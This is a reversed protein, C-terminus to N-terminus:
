PGEPRPRSLATEVRGDVRVLVEMPQASTLAYATVKGEKWAVDVAIGGRARLGTVAGSSWRAPLAPLLALLFPARIPAGAGAPAAPAPEHSQLLMEAIGATAGFNGDIQFPPCTDLLNPLTSEALAGHLLAEAHDGDELRAWLSIKWARSWGTGGDGRRVLSARAAAALAPTGRVTIDAAPFLGFLHSVHRHQPETEAFDESWEQLRGDAAVRWPALKALAGRLQGRLADDVGLATADALTNAFLDHIISLDMTSGRSVAASREQGAADRYRFANEPSTSVPTVLHGQGDDVLWDLYFLCADRLLPWADEALFRRDGGYLWHEHLQRCLWAGGLPWFAVQAQNDVPQADRWLTTNHHAVWGRCGYMDHAVKRGEVALEGIMRLLPESCEALACPEAPWYNMEANINLTYGCAWPPIVQDNWIGQLNLPQAGPRSGAIMLYRGFRFFLAELAPDPARLRQDTPVQAAADADAASGLGLRVRGYLARYDADHRARLEDYPRLAAATLAVATRPAPEVTPRGYGDYGSAAALIITAEDAGSITLGTGSAAVSGGRIRVRVGAQFALGQGDYLVQAAQPRRAGAADWLAPYKWTDHKREVWDLTRRLVFGPLRGAMALGDGTATVAVPHPSGLELRFSISGPASATCRLVLADDPRSAFCERTFTVAGAAFRVRCLAHGLDLERRYGGAAGPLVFRLRLDGLPQYCAWSAGLWHADMLQEAEKFRREALMGTVLPLERRIDLPLDRYGPHGSTLTDENLQLHEEAPDGFVMAGLHGNGIPLAEDWTAAPRAFWLSDADEVAAASGLSAALLAACLMVRSGLATVPPRTM